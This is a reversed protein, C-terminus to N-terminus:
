RNVFNEAYGDSFEMVNDRFKKDKSSLVKWIREYDSSNELHYKRLIKGYGFALDLTCPRDRLLDAYSGTGYGGDVEHAEAMDNEVSICYGLQWADGDPIQPGYGEAVEVVPRVAASTGETAQASSSCAGMALALLTAIGGLAKSMRNGRTLEM